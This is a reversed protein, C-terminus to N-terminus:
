KEFTIFNFQSETISLSCLWQSAKRIKVKYRTLFFFANFDTLCSIYVDLSMLCSKMALQLDLKKM